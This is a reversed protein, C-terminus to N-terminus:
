ADGKRLRDHAPDARYRQETAYVGAEDLYKPDECAHAAAAADRRAYALEADTMKRALEEKRTWWGYNPWAHYDPHTADPRATPRTTM